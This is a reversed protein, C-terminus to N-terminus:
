FPPPPIAGLQGHQSLLFGTARLSPPYRQSLRATDRLVPGSLVGTQECLKQECNEHGKFGEWGAFRHIEEQIEVPLVEFLIAFVGGFNRVFGRCRIHGLSPEVTCHFHEGARGRYDLLAETEVGILSTSLLPVCPTCALHPASSGGNMEM